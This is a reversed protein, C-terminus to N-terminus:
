FDNKLLLRVMMELEDCVGIATACASTDIPIRKWKQSLEELQERIIDKPTFIPVEKVASGPFEWVLDERRTAASTFNRGYRVFVYHDNFSTIVGPELKAGPHSAQYIVGRGVDTQKPDIM